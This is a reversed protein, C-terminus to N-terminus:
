EEFESRHKRVLLWLVLAVGAYIAAAVIWFTTYHRHKADLCAEDAGCDGM